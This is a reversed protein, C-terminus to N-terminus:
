GAPSPTLTYHRGTALHVTLSHGDPTAARTSM